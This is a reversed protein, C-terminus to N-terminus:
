AAALTEALARRIAAFSTDTVPLEAEHAGVEAGPKAGPLILHLADRTHKKDSRLAREFAELDTRAVRAALDPVRALLAVLHADLRAEVAGLEAGRAAALAIASRVGLAVGVGHSVGFGTAAELAHGFTHGFNLLRRQARDFEDREVFWRKCELVHALLAAADADADDGSAAWTAHLELHRDLAAPGRCYAIKAAEALGDVVAEEPLTRLFTPDVLVRSPPFYSGALNKHGGVNLSSKGGICSDAMALLTTPVYTWDIGRMYLSAAFTALDQVIGGGVAILESSRRAGADRMAGILTEGFGITKNAELAEVGIAGAPLDGLFRADAITVEDDGPVRAAFAGAAIEVRYTGRSSAVTLESPM